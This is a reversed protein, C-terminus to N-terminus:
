SDNELLLPRPNEVSGHPRQNRGPQDGDGIDGRAVNALAELQAVVQPHKAALDTSEGVDATVDFLLPQGPVLAPNPRRRGWEQLPLYLKWPGSRVAQLQNAEYYYFAVYPSKAGSEGLLLPRIDFGDLIRDTPPQTGALHAFTPLFDLTSSLEDCTTGAPVRGPWWVICPVRQGGEATTYGRGALPLNSGSPPAGNDSIWIVLTDRALELEQLVDMIQGASWDLEEVADGWSGNASRGRFAESAFSDRTSGPMNHPMYLFFPEDRHERIFRIAEETERQTLLNRDTPAEIVKENRLLPLDPWNQGERPTMDDSYPLGFFSDFGRRTPLYPDQDGLHWKGIAATAYGAQKLVDAVTVEDPHLGIPSVPRLVRGDTVDMNIRRPYSGTMISSRSPTCVGSTVYFHTFRRGAAAMRNLNPTSNLCEPNFPEVDGYGLNDCVMLIINPARADVTATGLLLLACAALWAGASPILRVLGFRYAIQSRNPRPVEVRQSRAQKRDDFSPM